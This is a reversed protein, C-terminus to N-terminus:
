PKPEPSLTIIRGGAPVVVAGANLAACRGCTVVAAVAAAALTWHVIARHSM